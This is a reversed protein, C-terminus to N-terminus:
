TNNRQRAVADALRAAAQAASPQTSFRELVERALDESEARQKAEAQRAEIQSRLAGLEAVQEDQRSAELEVLRRKAEAMERTAELSKRQM